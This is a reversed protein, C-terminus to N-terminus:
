KNMIEKLLRKKKDSHHKVSYEYWRAEDRTEFEKFGVLEFPRRYMTSKVKGTNHLLLRKTVNNTQGVYYKKDKLSRLVYVYFM